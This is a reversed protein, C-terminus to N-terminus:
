GRVVRKGIHQGDMVVVGELDVLETRIQRVKELQSLTSVFLRRIGTEQFQYQVQRATLPAHPPVNVAGAAMIALDAILWEVRNEALLGVRDGPKIGVDVLASACAEVQELYASWSMDHYLGYRKHRLAIRPGLRGAQTQFLAVLNRQDM